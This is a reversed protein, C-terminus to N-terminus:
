ILIYIMDPNTYIHTHVTLIINILIIGLNKYIPDRQQINAHIHVPVCDHICVHVLYLYM